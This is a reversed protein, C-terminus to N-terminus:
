IAQQPDLDNNDWAIGSDLSDTFPHSRHSNLTIDSVDVLCRENFSLSEYMKLCSSRFFIGTTHGPPECNGFIECEGESQILYSDQGVTVIPADVVPFNLGFVITIVIRTLLFKKM